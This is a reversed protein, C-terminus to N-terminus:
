NAQKALNIMMTVEDALKTPSGYYGDMDFRVNGKGDIIFKRPIATVNMKEAAYNYFGKKESGEKDFLLTFPFNNDKIYQLVWPKSKIPDHEETDLFYFLVNKDNAFREMAMKMGPFSAKCPACWSAFYDVVVVKGAWDKTNVLKGNSDYLAFQAFPKKVMAKKLETEMEAKGEQSKLSEVYADFDADNHHREKLIALMSPTAQNEFVGAELVKQLKDTQGAQQLLLAYDENLTSIKYGFYSTALDAYHLGEETKKMERLIRVHSLMAGYYGRDNRQMWESDPRNQFEAPKHDHFYDLKKMLLESRHLLNEPKDLHNSELLEVWHYQIDLVTFYPIENFYHEISSDKNPSRKILNSYVRNYEIGKKRDDERDTTALPYDELFQHSKQFFKASDQESLAGWYAKEKPTRETTQAHSYLAACLAAALLTTKLQMLM